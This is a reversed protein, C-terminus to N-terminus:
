GCGSEHLRERKRRSDLYYITGGNGGISLTGEVQLNDLPNVVVNEATTLDGTVSINGGTTVDSNVTFDGLVAINDTTQTLVDVTLSNVPFQVLDSNGAADDDIILTEVLDVDESSLNTAGLENGATINQGDAAYELNTINGNYVPAEGAISGAQSRYVNLEDTAGTVAADQLQLVGAEALTLVGSELALDFPPNVGITTVGSGDVEDSQIFLFGNGNTSTVTLDTGGSLHLSEITLQDTNDSDDRRVELTLDAINTFGGIDLDADTPTYDGAIVVLTGAGGSAVQGDLAALGAAITTEDSGPSADQDVIVTQAQAAGASLGVLLFLALCLRLAPETIRKMTTTEEM